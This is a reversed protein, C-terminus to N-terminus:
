LQPLCFYFFIASITFAFTIKTYVYHKEIRRSMFPFFTRSLVGMMSHAVYTFKSGADFIGTAKPGGWLGLLLVSFSNYFNPMLENIFIDKGGKISKKIVSISPKMIKINWRVVIVYMAVLGSVITGLSLLLPQILYDSKDKVFVFVAITFLTKSIVDFITIYKMRELAQFFWDPFLLRGPVLLFTFLILLTDTRLAPVCLVITFLVVFAVIMLLTKAWLVNSFIYSVFVKDERKRAIERTATFSFGWDVFTQVWTIIATAFAIRGFGEVGIVMALYPMTILPFVYSAIQLLSLYAFNEALVKGDHSKRLNKFFEKVRM